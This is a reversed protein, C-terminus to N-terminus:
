SAKQGSSVLGSTSALRSHSLCPARSMKEVAILAEFDFPDDLPDEDPLPIMDEHVSLGLEATDETPSGIAATTAPERMEVNPITHRSQNRRLAPLM